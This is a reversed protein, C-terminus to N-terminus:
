NNSNLFPPLLNKSAAQNVDSGDLAATLKCLHELTLACSRYLHCPSPEMGFLLHAYFLIPVSVPGAIPCYVLAVVM